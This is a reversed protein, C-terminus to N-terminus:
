RSGKPPLNSVRVLGVFCSCGEPYDGPELFYKIPPSVAVLEYTGLESEEIMWGQEALSASAKAALEMQDKIYSDVDIYTDKLFSESVPVNVIVLVPKM